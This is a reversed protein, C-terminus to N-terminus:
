HIVFRKSFVRLVTEPVQDQHKYWEVVALFLDLEEINLNSTKCFFLIIESSIKKFNENHAVEDAHDYMFELCHELLHDFKKFTAISVFFFINIVELSNKVFDVLITELTAINFYHAADLIQVIYKSDVNVKGTYLFVLLNKLTETNTTPLDIEKQSSERMKGYLMARFVPSGAAVIARHATVWVVEM